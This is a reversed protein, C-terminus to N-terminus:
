CTCACCSCAILSPSFPAAQRSGTQQRDTGQRGQRVGDARRNLSRGAGVFRPMCWGRFGVQLAHGQAAEPLTGLAAREHAVQRAARELSPAGAEEAAEHPLTYPELVQLLRATGGGLPEQLCASGVLEAAEPSLM